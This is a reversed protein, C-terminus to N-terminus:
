QIPSRQIEWDPTHEEKFAEIANQEEIIARITKVMQKGQGRISM